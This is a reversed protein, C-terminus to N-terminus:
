PLPKLMCEDQSLYNLSGGDLNLPNPNKTQKQEYVHM